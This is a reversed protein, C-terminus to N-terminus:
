SVLFVVYRHRCVTRASKSCHRFVSRIDNCDLKNGRRLAAVEM